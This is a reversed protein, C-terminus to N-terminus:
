RGRIVKESLIALAGELDPVQGNAPAVQADVTRRHSREIAESMLPEVGTERLTQAVLGMEEWRRGAHVIHTQVLMAIFDRFPMQDADALCALVEELIGQRQATVFAEVGLAEVGKILVSRVMKVSSASGPKPGLAKAEFGNATMWAVIPGVDQGAVLMPAKMGQKFFGGMVAVDIYRGKGAEIFARDADAMKGTVTCLDLYHADPKLLPAAAEAAEAASDGPVACIVLDAESLAATYSGEIAVDLARAAKGLATGRADRDLATDIAILRRPANDGPRSMGRWGDGAALGHAITSGAEGFGILAIVRPSLSM